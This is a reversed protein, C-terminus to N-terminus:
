KGTSGFGGTRESEPKDGTVINYNTIIGQGIREGVDFRYPEKGINMVLFGINGDNSPNNFYDKDVIGPANILIIGEKAMSSRITLMLVENKKQTYWKVDTWFLYPKGPYLVVNELIRFDYGASYETKRTPLVVAENPFKRLEDKVVQFNTM